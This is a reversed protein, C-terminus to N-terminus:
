RLIDFLVFSLQVCCVLLIQSSMLYSFSWTGQDNSKECKKNKKDNPEETSGDEKTKRKRKKKPKPIPTGNENEKEGEEELEPMEKEEEEDEEEM